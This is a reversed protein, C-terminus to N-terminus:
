STILKAVYQNNFLCLHNIYASRNGLSVIDGHAFGHFFSDKTLVDTRAGFTRNKTGAEIASLKFIDNMGM